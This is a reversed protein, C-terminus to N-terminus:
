IGLHKLVELEASCKKEIVEILGNISKVNDIRDMLSAEILPKEGLLIRWNNHKDKDWKLNSYEGALFGFSKLHTEMERIYANMADLRKKIEEGKM